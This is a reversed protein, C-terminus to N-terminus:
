RLTALAVAVTGERTTKFETQNGTAVSLILAVLAVAVLAVFTRAITCRAEGAAGRWLAATAALGCLALTWVAFWLVAGDSAWDLASGLLSGSRQKPVRSTITPRPGHV